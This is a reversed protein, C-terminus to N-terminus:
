RGTRGGISTVTTDVWPVVGVAEDLRAQAVLYDYVAQAYNFETERLATEADTLELRSSIGERFQTRAIAYGREAQGVAQRQAETRSRAEVLADILTRIQNEIQVQSIRQQAEVQRVEVQRQQVRAPRQFGSFIPMTVQIGVERGYTRQGGANGFFSARGDEFATMSYLGILSIRPLYESQEARLQSQYLRRQWELQRLDSRQARAVELIEEVSHRPADPVGAFELLQRNAPDNEAPELHLDALAGAVRVEEGGSMGLEAALVRRAAAVEAASRRLRPELNALQVELRLVDYDSALGARYQARTEELAQRIRAVTNETLREGEQALLVDLYAHRARTVVQQTVGRYEETRLSQYRNAAGVGIFVSAQFLTQEFRVQGYWLNDFGFRLPILLDSPASPDFIQAPLFQVPVELNRTYSSMANVQPYVSGWAERVRQSADILGLRGLEMERNREMATRVVDDMTMVREPAAEQAVSPQVAALGVAVGSVLLFGRAWVQSQMIKITDHSGMRITGAVV